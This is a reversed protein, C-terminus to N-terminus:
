LIAVQYLGVCDLVRSTLFLGIEGEDSAANSTCEIRVYRADVPAELAFEQMRETDLTRFEGVVRWDRATDDNDSGVYKSVHVRFNRVSLPGHPLPPIRIGITTVRRLSGSGLEFDLYESGEGGNFRQSDSIWWDNEWSMVASLPFDGRHSSSSTCRVKSPDVFRSRLWDFISNALLDPLGWGGVGLIQMGVEQSICDDLIPQQRLTAERTIPCTDTLSSRVLASAPPYVKEELEFLKTAPVAIEKAGQATGTKWFASHLKVVYKEEDATKRVVKAVHGEYEPKRELHRLRVITGPRLEKSAVEALDASADGPSDIFGSM